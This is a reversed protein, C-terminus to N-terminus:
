QNDTEATFIRYCLNRLVEATRGEGLRVNIAGPDLRTEQAALGSMPPLFAMRTDAAQRPVAMREGDGNDGLRLPRPSGLEISADVFQKFRRVVLNTLM